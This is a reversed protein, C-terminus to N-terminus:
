VSSPAGAGTRPSGRASPCVGERLCECWEESGADVMRGSLQRFDSGFQEPCWPVGKGSRRRELTRRCRHLSKSCPEELWRAARRSSTTGTRQQWQGQHSPVLSSRECWSSEPFLHPLPFIVAVPLRHAATTVSVPSSSARRRLLDQAPSSLPLSLVTLRPDTRHGTRPLSPGLRAACPDAQSSGDPVTVANRFRLMSRHRAPLETLTVEVARRSVVFSGRELLPLQDHADPWRGLTASQSACRPGPAMEKEVIRLSSCEVSRADQPEGVKGPVWEERPLDSAAGGRQSLADSLLSPLHVRRCRTLRKGACSSCKASEFLPFLEFVVAARPQRFDSALAALPRHARKLRM